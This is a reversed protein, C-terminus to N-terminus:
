LTLEGALRELDALVKGFAVAYFDGEDACQVDRYDHLAERLRIVAGGLTEAPTDWMRDEIADVREHNSDLLAHFDPMGAAEQAAEQARRAKIWWQIRERGEAKRQALVENGGYVLMETQRNFSKVCSLSVRNENPGGYDNRRLWGRMLNMVPNKFDVEPWGFAWDGAKDSAASFLAGVKAGAARAEMLDVELAVLPEGALAVKVGASKIALPVTIAGTVIAAATAGMLADRRSIQM